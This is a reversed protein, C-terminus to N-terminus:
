LYNLFFFISVDVDDLYLEKPIIEKSRFFDFIMERMADNDEKDIYTDTLFGCSGLVVLKGASTPSSYYACIPRNTPIAMTGSSLVVSSPQVVNLTAGYPYVFQM